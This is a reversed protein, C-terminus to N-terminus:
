GVQKWIDLYYRQFHICQYTCKSYFIDFTQAVIVCYSLFISVSFGHSNELLPDCSKM